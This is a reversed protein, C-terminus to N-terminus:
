GKIISSRPVHLPWGCERHGMSGRGTLDHQEQVSDHERRAQEELLLINMCATIAHVALETVIARGDWKLNIFSSSWIPRLNGYCLDAIEGRTAPSMDSLLTERIQRGFLEYINWSTPQNKWWHDAIIHMDRMMKKTIRTLWGQPDKQAKRM